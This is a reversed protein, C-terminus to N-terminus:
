LHGGCDADDLAGCLSDEADSPYSSKLIILVVCVIRLRIRM